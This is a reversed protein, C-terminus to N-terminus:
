LAQIAYPAPTLKQRPTLPPSFAGGGNTRVAIELWRDGNAFASLGFDLTATFLGNSVSTSNTLPGAFAIGDSPVSFLTFTLDYSGNAPHGNDTLVGQYTFASGQAFATSLQCNLACPLLLTALTNVIKTKM